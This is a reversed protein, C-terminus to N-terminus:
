PHIEVLITPLISFKLDFYKTQLYRCIRDNSLEPMVSSVYTYKDICQCAETRLSTLWCPRNLGVSSLINTGESPHPQSTSFFGPCALGRGPAHCDRPPKRYCEIDSPLMSYSCQKFRHENWKSSSSPIAYHLSYSCIAICIYM